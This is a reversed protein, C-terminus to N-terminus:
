KLSKIIKEYNNRKIRGNITFGDVLIWLPYFIFLVHGLNWYANENIKFDFEIQILRGMLIFFLLPYLQKIIGSLYQGTFFRDIGWMFPVLWYLLTFLTPNKTSVSLLRFSKSDELQELKLSLEHIKRTPLHRGKQLFFNQIQEETM